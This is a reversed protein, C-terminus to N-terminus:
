RLGLDEKYLFNCKKVYKVPIKDNVLTIQYHRIGGFGRIEPDIALWNIPTYDPYDVISSTLNKGCMEIITSVLGLNKLEEYSPLQFLERSEFFNGLNGKTIKPCYKSIPETIVLISHLREEGFHNSIMKLYADKAIKKIKGTELLMKCMPNHLYYEEPVLSPTIIGESMVNNPKNIYLYFNNM